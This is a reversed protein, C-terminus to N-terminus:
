GWLGAIPRDCGSRFTPLLRKKKQFFLLLFVEGVLDKPPLSAFGFVGEAEGGAVARLGAARLRIFTKQKKKEFFFRKGEEV